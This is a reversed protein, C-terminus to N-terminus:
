LFPFLGFVLSVKRNRRARITDARTVVPRNLDEEFELKKREREMVDIKPCM